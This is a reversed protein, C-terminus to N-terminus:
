FPCYKCKGPLIRRMRIGDFEKQIRSRISKLSNLKVELQNFEEINAYQKDGIRAPKDTRLAEAFASGIKSQDPSFNVEGMDAEIQQMIERGVGQRRYDPRVYINSVINEDPSSVGQFAGVIEGADNRYLYRWSDFESETVDINGVTKVLREQGGREQM